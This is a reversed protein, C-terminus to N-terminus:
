NLRSFIYKIFIKSSSYLTGFSGSFTLNCVSFFKDKISGDLLSSAHKAITRQKIIEAICKDKLDDDKKIFFYYHMLDTLNSEFLFIFRNLNLLQKEIPGKKELMISGNHRRYKVLAKPIHIVEGILASRFPIADDEYTLSSPLPGFQEFISKHWAHTAGLVGHFKRKAYALPLFSGNPLSVSYYGTPNGAEDIYTADSYISCSVQKSSLYCEVIVSTREPESVDDGAAGVILDGHALEVVRNVHGGIHLNVINKNLVIRHPGEYNLAMEQMIEFTHDTSCDDSLIIELPTYTQSFAGEIAKRIFQDQNFAFIAFTILLPSQENNSAAYMKLTFSDSYNSM